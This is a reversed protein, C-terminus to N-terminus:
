RRGHRGINPFGHLCIVLPHEVSGCAAYNLEIDGSEFTGFRMALHKGRLAALEDQTRSM